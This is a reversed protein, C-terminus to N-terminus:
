RLYAAQTARADPSDASRHERGLHWGDWAVFSIADWASWAAATNLEQAAAWALRFAKDVKTGSVKRDAYQEAVEIAQRSREDTLLEWFLRCRAVVFLRMKRNTLRKNPELYDVMADPDTCALWEAETM